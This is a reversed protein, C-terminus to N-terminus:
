NLAAKSLLAQFRQDTRLTDFAPEQGMFNLWPSHEEYARELASLAADRDGATAYLKAMDLSSVTGRGVVLRIRQRWYGRPGDAQYARELLEAEQPKGEGAWAMRQCSAAQRFDGQQEYVSALMEYVTPRLAPDLDLLSRFQAASRGYDRKYYFIDGWFYNIVTAYPDLDHATRIQDLADDFRGMVVLYHAYWHHATAYNPNLDIATKFEREASPYDWEYSTKVEALSTHAEALSNDLQLAKEAAAKAKPMAESPNLGGHHAMVLYSDAVGAWAAAYSPDIATARQFFQLGLAEAEKGRRHWWYRGRLYMEHAEVNVPAGNGSARRTIQSNIRSAIERALQTQVLLVDREERQYSDAWLHKEPDVQILQVTMKVRNGSHLVTGEVVADVNLTRAIQRLPPRKSQYPMVSTRSIVRASSVRALETTLEDTLGEAYFDSDKEHSLNELPLVALATIPRDADRYTGSDRTARFYAAVSLATVLVALSAILVPRPTLSRNFVVTKAPKEGELEPARSAEGGPSNPTTAANNLREVPAVFRYGLRPVTEIYRAGQPHDALVTRIQSICFNISREFDVHTVDGWLAQRIEERSVLEGRAEALLVLLKFPQGQIKLM